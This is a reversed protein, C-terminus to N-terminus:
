CPSPEETLPARMTQFMTLDFPPKFSGKKIPRQFIKALNKQLKLSFLPVPVLSHYGAKM